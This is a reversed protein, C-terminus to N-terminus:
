GVLLFCILLVFYCYPNNMLLLVFSSIVDFILVCSVPFCIVFDVPSVPWCVFIIVFLKIGLVISGVLAVGSDTCSISPHTM